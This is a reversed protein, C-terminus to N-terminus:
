NTLNYIAASIAIFGMILIFANSIKGKYKQLSPIKNIAYMPMIFLIMAIVPGGLAEIMGLISPNLTAVLWATLFMFLMTIRSLKKESITKNQSQLAKNMLGIFGEKAGLYHGLFSKSIAIFAIFPAIYELMPTKFHNALYSLITINEM